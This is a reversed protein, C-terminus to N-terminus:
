PIDQTVAPPNGASMYSSTNATNNRISFKGSSQTTKETPNPVIISSLQTCQVNSVLSTSKYSQLSQLNKHGSLQAVFIEPTNADLLRSISTKRVSHNSLKDGARQLGASDAAKSLFKGIENKGLPSRMYWINNNHHRNGHRVALFFPADETNMEVPCHSMYEKYYRVPCRESGTAYIKPQFSRQHGNEQGHRTKRGRECLWVLMERGNSNVQLQIYRGLM